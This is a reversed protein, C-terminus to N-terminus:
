RDGVLGTRRATREVWARHEAAAPDHRGELLEAIRTRCVLLERVDGLRELVPLQRDTRIRLAEDLAGQRARVHATRGLVGAVARVDGLQEFVPLVEQYGALAAALDGREVRVDAIKMRATAAARVDGLAEYVPLEQESRLRLAEDLDGARHALDALRGAVQARERVMGLREYVPLEEELHLRRAEAERGTAALLDAVRGVAIARERAAGLREYVPLEEELHLRLAEDVAGRLALVEAVKGVTMARERAAGLREFAPGAEDRWLRLAEDVEGRAFRIEAIKGLTMAREREDGLRDFVALGESRMRLAEDLQGRLQLVNAVKGLAVARAQDDGTRAHVPIERTLRLELAEDLAGRAALVDALRGRAFAAARVDGAADFVPLAEALWALAEDLEGRVTALEARLSALAAAERPDPVSRAVPEAEDVAARAADLEGRRAAERARRRRGRLWLEPFAARLPGDDAGPEFAAAAAVAGEALAESTRGPDLSLRAGWRTEPDDDDVLARARSRAVDDHGLGRATEMAWWGRRGTAGLGAAVAGFPSRPPAPPPPGLIRLPDLGLDLSAALPRGTALAATVSMPASAVERAPWGDFGRDVTCSGAGGVAAEAWRARASGFPDVTTWRRVPASRVRALLGEWPAGADLRAVPGRGLAVQGDPDAHVVPEGRDAAARLGEAAGSWAATPLFWVHAVWDWLDPARDRVSPLDDRSLVLLLRARLANRFLNLTLAQDPTLVHLATAGPPLSALGGVDATAVAGPDAARLARWAVLLAEPGDGVAALLLTDRRVRLRRALEGAFSGSM